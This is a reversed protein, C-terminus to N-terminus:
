IYNNMNNNSLAMDQWNVAAILGEQPRGAENPHRGLHGPEALDGIEIWTPQM